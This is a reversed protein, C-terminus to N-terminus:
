WCCEVLCEGLYCNLIFAVSNAAETKLINRQWKQSNAHGIKVVTQLIQYVYWSTLM